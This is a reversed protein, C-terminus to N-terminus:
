TRFLAQRYAGPSQGTWRKFARGFTAVDSFGARAAVEGLSLSRNAIHEIAVDKRVRTALDSFTTGSEDLRRQLTRTSLKLARAVDQADAGLDARLARMVSAQFDRPVAGLARDALAVATAHLRPDHHPSPRAAEKADFAIGNCARDFEIKKTGFHERLSAVDDDDPRAHSFFVRRPALDSASYRRAYFLTSAVAYENGYRGGPEASRLRQAVVLEGGKVECSFVLHVYFLSAYKVVDEFADRLTASTRAALEGLDYTRWELLDPLHLAIAPDRTLRAATAFLREFTEPDIAAADAHEATEPLGLQEVLADVDVGRGRLYRLMQPIM